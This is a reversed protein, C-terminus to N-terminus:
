KEENSEDNLRNLEALEQQYDREIGRIAYLTADAKDDQGQLVAESCEKRLANLVVPVCELPVSWMTLTRNKM